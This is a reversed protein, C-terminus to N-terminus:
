HRNDLPRYIDSFDLSWQCNFSEYVDIWENRNRRWRPSFEFIVLKPMCSLLYVTQSPSLYTSRVMYLEELENFKSLISIIEATNNMISKLNEIKRIKLHKLNNESVYLVQLINCSETIKLYRISPNEGIERKFLYKPNM